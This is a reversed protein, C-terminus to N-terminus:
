LSDVRKGQMKRMKRSIQRMREDVSLHTDYANGAIRYNIDGNCHLDLKGCWLQSFGLVFPARNVTAHGWLGPLLLVDGPEQTCRLPMHPPLGDREQATPWISSITSSMGAYEFPAIKWEKRGFLLVNIAANHFHFTAGSGNGGAWLNPMKLHNWARALLPLGPPPLPSRPRPRLGPPLHETWM